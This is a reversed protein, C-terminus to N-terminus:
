AIIRGSIKTPLIRVYHDKQGPAWPRLGLKDLEAIEDAQWVEEAQGRIVVSWRSDDEDAGDVEFAVSHRHITELLSGYGIRLIVAGLQWRYNLPLVEPHGDRIFGLRGISRTALLEMCRDVDLAALGSVNEPRRTMDGAPRHETELLALLCDSSTVLGVLKDDEVVPVGNIRRSLMTRAADAITADATVTHVPASMVGDATTEGDPDRDTGSIRMVDRDSVMGVVAGNADVVPVHRIGRESILQLVEDVATGREVTIPDPSMWERVRM